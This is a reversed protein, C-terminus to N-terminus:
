RRGGRWKHYARGRYRGRPQRRLILRTLTERDGRRVDRLRERDEHRQTQSDRLGQSGTYYHGKTDGDGGGEKDKNNMDSMKRVEGLHGLIDTVNLDEPPESLLIRVEHFPKMNTPCENKVKEINREIMNQSSLIEECNGKQLLCRPLDVSSKVKDVYAQVDALQKSHDQHATNFLRDVEKMM